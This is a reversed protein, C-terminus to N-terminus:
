CERVWCLGGDNLVARDIATMCVGVMTAAAAFYSDASGGAVGERQGAMDGQRVVADHGVWLNEIASARSARAFRSKDAFARKRASATTACHTAARPRARRDRRHRGLPCVRTTQPAPGRNGWLKRRNPSPPARSRRLLGREGRGQSSYKSNSLVLRGDGLLLQGGTGLLDPGAWVRRGILVPASPNHQSLM